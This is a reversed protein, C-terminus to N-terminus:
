DLAYFQDVLEELEAQSMIWGEGSAGSSNRCVLFGLLENLAADYNDSSPTM